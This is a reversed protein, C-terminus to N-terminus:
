ALPKQGAGIQRRMQKAWVLIPRWSKEDAPFLSDPLLLVVRSRSLSTDQAPRLSLVILWPYVSLSVCSGSMWEGDPQLLSVGLPRFSFLLPVVTQVTRYWAIGLLMLLAALALGYVWGTLSTQELALISLLGLLFLAARLRRSAVPRIEFRRTM